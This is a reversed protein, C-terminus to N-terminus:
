GFIEKTFLDGADHAATSITANISLSPLFDKKAIGVGMAAQALEQEAAAIDPRRRLLDAPVGTSILVNYDPIEGGETVGSPLDNSYMGLLTALANLQAHIQYKLAPVTAVTAYYVAKAQSVDLVSALGTEHRAEAIKLVHEQSSIHEEAVKLQAQAVRLEVYNTAIEAAMSVMVGAYEARSARWAAKKQKVGATIKGFLDIEWSMTAGANFYSTGTATGPKSQTMGSNRGKQWSVDIGITPYYGAKAAQVQARAADIRTMASLVDYNNRMGTSILSDLLPDNLRSWWDDGDPLTQVQDSSYSWREPLPPTSTPETAHLETMTMIMVIFAAILIRCDHQSM